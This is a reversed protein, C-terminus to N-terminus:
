FLFSSLLLIYIKPFCLNLFFHDCLQDIRWHWAVYMRGKGRFKPLYFSSLVHGCVFTVFRWSTPFSKAPYTSPATTCSSCSPRCTTLTWTKWFSSRISVPTSASCRKFTTRAPRSCCKTPRFTNVRLQSPSTSWLKPNTFDLSDQCLSLLTATGGCASTGRATVVAPPCPVARLWLCKWYVSSDTAIHSNNIQWFTYWDM